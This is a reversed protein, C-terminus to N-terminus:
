KRLERVIAYGLYLPWGFVCVVIFMACALWHYHHWRAERTEVGVAYAAFWAGVLIYVAMIWIM